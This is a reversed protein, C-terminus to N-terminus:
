VVPQDAPAVPEEDVPEEAVPEEAVPEEPVPEDVVPEEPQADPNLDDLEQATIKLENLAAQVDAAVTDKEVIEDRSKKLQENIARINAALDNMTVMIRGQLLEARKYYKVVDDLASNHIHLEKIIIKNM